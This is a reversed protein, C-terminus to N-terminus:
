SNISVVTKSSRGDDAMRYALALKLVRAATPWCRRLWRGGGHGAAAREVQLVAAQAQLQPVVAGGDHRGDVAGEAEGPGAGATEDPDAAAVVAKADGHQLHRSRHQRQWQGRQHRLLDIPRAQERNVVPGDKRAAESMPTFLFRVM